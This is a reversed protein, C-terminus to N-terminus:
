LYPPQNQIQFSPVLLIAQEIFSNFISQNDKLFKELRTNLINIEKRIYGLYIRGLVDMCIKANEIMKDIYKDKDINKDLNKLKSYYQVNNDYLQIYPSNAVNPDFQERTSENRETCIYRHYMVNRILDQGITTKINFFQKANTYALTDIVALNPWYSDTNLEVFTQCYEDWNNKCREIMYNTCNTNMNSYLQGSSTSGHSFQSGLTPVLCYTIPNAANFNNNVNSNIAKGFNIFKSYPM